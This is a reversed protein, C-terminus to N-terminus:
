YGQLLATVYSSNELTFHLVARVGPCCATSYIVELKSQKSMFYIILLEPYDTQYQLSPSFKQDTGNM